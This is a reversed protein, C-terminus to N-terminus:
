EDFFLSENFENDAEYIKMKTNRKKIVIQERKM